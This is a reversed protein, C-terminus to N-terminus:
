CMNEGLMHTEHLFIWSMTFSHSTTQTSLQVMNMSTPILRSSARRIKKFLTGELIVLSLLWFRRSRKRHSPVLISTHVFNPPLGYRLVGEVFMRIVKMHAWNKIIDNYATHSLRVTEAWLKREQEGAMRVEKRVSEVMGDTYHFDRPTWKSERAKVAFQTFYKTFLTTNFLTYEDDSAIVSASRPVVMPVLTEYRALYEKVLSKPVAVLITTLYESECVIHERRVVDHLSRVSLNGSVVNTLGAMGSYM